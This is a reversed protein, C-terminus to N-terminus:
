FINTIKFVRRSDVILSFIRTEPRFLKGIGEVCIYLNFFFSSAEVSKLLSTRTNNSLASIDAM